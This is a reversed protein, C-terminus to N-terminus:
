ERVLNHLVADLNFDYQKMEPNHFRSFARFDIQDWDEAGFRLRFDAVNKRTISSFHSQSVAPIALGHMQDYLMVLAWAGDMFHGGITASFSGDDVMEIAPATWDIGGVVVTKGPNKGSDRAGDVAGKGMLDSASWIVSTQPYRKLLGVTLEQAREQKWDAHVVQLLKVDPTEAIARRLGEERLISASSRQHGNIAIINIVGLEDVLGKERADEILRKALLYGAHTDDPLLEFLWQKYRDGPYGMAAREEGLFSQNIFITKIGAAEAKDLIAKGSGRANMAVVYDPLPNRSFIAQVNEDIVVHNRDGFYSILEIGLDNAAAQMFDNMPGFFVDDKAGPSEFVVVPRTEAFSTVSATLLLLLALVFTKVRKM